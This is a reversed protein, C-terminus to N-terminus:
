RTFGRGIFELAPIIGTRWYEWSHAGERVRFQHTIKRDHLAISLLANGNFLYDDDGCDLWWRVSSLKAADSTEAMKLVSHHHWHEPLTDGRMPGFLSNFGWRDNKLRGAFEEDTIIAASLGAAASFLEPHRMALVLTGYGGMSLGAIGRFEKTGRIRFKREVEPIFESVMMEEYRSKGSVDNIYWTSDADPMVIIMPPITGDAIAANALRDIQGYQIWDIECGTFGHLLYVVPYWRTATSYDPPLYVSYSVKHQLVNSEVILRETITGQQQGFAVFFMLFPLSVTIVIKRIM